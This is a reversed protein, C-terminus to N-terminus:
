LNKENYGIDNLIYQTDRWNERVKVWINIFFKAGFFEELDERAYSGIKKIMEGNKGIIIQKHNERECYLSINVSILNKKEDEAFTDAVVAIGHPIEDDLLRLAKERIVECIIQRETQDTSIDEPFFFESVVLYKDLEQKLLNVGDNNLASIPIIADFAYYDSYLGILELISPKPVTDIKNIVLILPIKKAKFREILDKETKGINKIPEVLLVAVDADGVTGSASKTMYNGLLSKPTHMGPTDFFVYQCDNETLIGTIKNRTTQPKKSVISIKEKMLANLLTSKGVNARGMLPIFATKKNM